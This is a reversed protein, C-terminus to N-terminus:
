VVRFVLCKCPIIWTLRLWKPELSITTFMCAVMMLRTQVLSSVSAHVCVLFRLDFANSVCPQPSIRTGSVSGYDLRTQSVTSSVSAHVCVLFWWVHKFCLVPYQKTLPSVSACLCPVSDLRTQFVCVSAHASPHTQFVPHFSISTYLLSGWDLRTQVHATSQHKYALWDYFDLSISVSPHTRAFLHIRPKFLVVSSEMGGTGKNSCRLLLGSIASCVGSSPWFCRFCCGSVWWFFQATRHPPPGPFPGVPDVPWPTSSWCVTASMGVFM